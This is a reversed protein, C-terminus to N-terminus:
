FVTDYPKGFRAIKNKIMVRHEKYYEKLFQEKIRVMENLSFSTLGNEKCSFVSDSKKQLCDLSEYLESGIMYNLIKINVQDFECKRILSFTQEISEKTEKPAGIIFNGVTFIGCNNTYRIIDPITNIRINKRYYNLIEQNGSEIGFSIIRINCSAALRIFEDDINAWSSIFFNLGGSISDKEIRKLLRKARLLNFTFNEDIIWIDKYGRQKILEIENIVYDDSHMVYGNQWGKRQCFICTNECGKATQLLTCHSYRAYYPIKLLLGRNIYPLDDFSNIENIIVSSYRNVINIINNIDNEVITHTASAFKKKTIYCYNGYTVTIITPSLLNVINSAQVINQSRKLAFSDCEILVLEISENRCFMLLENENFDECSYDKIHIKHKLELVTALILLEYSFGFRPKRLIDPQPYILLINM